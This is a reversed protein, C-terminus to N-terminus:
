GSVINRRIRVAWISISLTAYACSSFDKGQLFARANPLARAKANKVSSPLIAPAALCGTSRIGLPGVGSGKRFFPAGQQAAGKRM